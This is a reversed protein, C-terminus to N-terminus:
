RSSRRRNRLIEIAIPTVSILVIAAIIPLIYTDISRGKPLSNGLAYGLMTVLVAWFVGGLANFVTFRRVDVRAIGAFPNILTRVIPVFRALLIAKGVGYRDLYVQVRDVWEKRFLRSEPRHFLRPGAARGILYGTQGGAVAAVATGALIAALNLHVPAATSACFFGATFLLSDGPLFFGILLGTEAFLVLFVGFAGLSALLSTSSLPNLAGVLQTSAQSLM